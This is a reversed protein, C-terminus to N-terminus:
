HTSSHLDNLTMIRMMSRHNISRDISQENTRENMSVFTERVNNM